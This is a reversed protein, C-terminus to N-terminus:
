EIDFDFYAKITFNPKSIENEYFWPFGTHDISSKVMEFDDRNLFNDIVEFNDM